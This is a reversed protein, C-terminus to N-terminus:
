RPPKTDGAATPSLRDNPAHSTAKGLSALLGATAETMGCAFSAQDRVTFRMVKRADPHTGYKVVAGDTIRVEVEEFGFLENRLTRDMTHSHPRLKSVYRGGERVLDRGALAGFVATCWLNRTGALLRERRAADVRHRLFALPEATEKELAYIFFQLLDPSADRLLDRHKAQWFSAHGNNQWLGGDFCPVWYVPLGSRLLGVYAHPDLQVNWERFNEKSAEGIFVMLKGVKARFLAPERNFAAVIDRVSGVTIIMVPLTSTRLVSLIAAVGQQFPPSQDLAADAPQRLKAGLGRVAPVQRGTICNMQAVPVTGSQKLQLEGQDLIVCRIDFEPIGFVTALDFHDDPDGHPHFLDTCYILPIKLDPAGAAEKGLGADALWVLALCVLL